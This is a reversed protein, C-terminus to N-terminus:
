MVRAYEAYLGAVADAFAQPPFEVALSPAPRTWCSRSRAARPPRAFGVRCGDDAATREGAQTCRTTARQCGRGSVSAQQRGGALRAAAATRPRVDPARQGAHDLSRSCRGTCASELHLSRRRPRVARAVGDAFQPMSWGATWSAPQGQAVGLLLGLQERTYWPPVAILAESGTSTRRSSRWRSRTRVEARNAPRLADPTLLTRHRTRGTARRRPLPALREGALLGPSWGRPGDLMPVRGAGRRPDPRRALSTGADNIELALTM